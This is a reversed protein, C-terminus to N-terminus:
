LSQHLTFNDLAGLGRTYQATEPKAGRGHAGPRHSDSFFYPSPVIYQHEFRYYIKPLISAQIPLRYYLVKIVLTVKIVGDCVNGIFASGSM